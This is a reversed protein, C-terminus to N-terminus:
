SGRGPIRSRMTGWYTGPTVDLIEVPGAVKSSWVVRHFDWGNTGSQPGLTSLGWSRLADRYTSIPQGNVNQSEDCTFFHNKGRVGRVTTRMFVYGFVGTPLDDGMMTGQFGSWTAPAIYEIGNEHYFNFSDGSITAMSIPELNELLPSLFGDVDETFGVNGGSGASDIEFHFTMAQDDGAYDAVALVRVVDGVGLAM